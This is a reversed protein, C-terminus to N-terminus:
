FTDSPRKERYTVAAKASGRSCAMSIRKPLIRKVRTEADREKGDYEEVLNERVEVNAFTSIPVNVPGEVIDSIEDLLRILVVKLLSGVVFNPILSLQSQILKRETKHDQTRNNKLREEISQVCFSFQLKRKQRLISGIPEDRSEIHITVSPPM